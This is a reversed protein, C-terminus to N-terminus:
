RYKTGLLRVTPRAGMFSVKLFLISAEQQERALDGTCNGAHQGEEGFQEKLGGASGETHSLELCSM